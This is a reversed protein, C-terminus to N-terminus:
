AAPTAARLRQEVEARADDAAHRAHRRSLLRRADDGHLPDARAGARVRDCVGFAHAVIGGISPFARYLELHTPTDSSPRLKGGISRRRDDLSVAVMHEPTLEEYPVGSPKIVFVGAERDVASVNGFTGIVLGTEALAGIPAASPRVCDCRVTREKLALLRKM